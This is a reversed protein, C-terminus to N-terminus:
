WAKWMTAVFYGAVPIRGASADRAAGIGQPGAAALVDVPLRTLEAFLEAYREPRGETFRREVLVSRGEVFGEDALGARFAEVGGRSSEATGALVWAGRPVREGQACAPLVTVCLLLLTALNRRM